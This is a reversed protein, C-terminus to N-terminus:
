KNLQKKKHLEVLAMACYNCADLITDEIKEDKVQADNSVLQELRSLKDNLRIVLSLLGFKDFQVGFSNGYDANKAKYIEHMDDLIEKHIQADSKDQKSLGEVLKDAIKRADINKNKSNLVLEKESLITMAANGAWDGLKVKPEFKARFKEAYLHNYNVVAMSGDDQFQIEAQENVWDIMIIAVKHGNYYCLEENILRLGNTGDPLAKLEDERLKVTEGNVLTVLYEYTKNVRQEMVRGNLDAIESRVTEPTRLVLVHQRTNFKFKNM